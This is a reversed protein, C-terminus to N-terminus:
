KEAHMQVMFVNINMRAFITEFVLSSNLLMKEYYVEEM